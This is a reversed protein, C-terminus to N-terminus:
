LRCNLSALKYKVIDLIYYTIMLIKKLLHCIIYYENIYVYLCYKEYIISYIYIHINLLIIYIYIHKKLRYLINM